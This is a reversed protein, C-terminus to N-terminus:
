EVASSPGDDTAACLADSEFDIAVPRQKLEPLLAERTKSRTSVGNIRTIWAGVPVGNQSAQGSAGIQLVMPWQNTWGIEM